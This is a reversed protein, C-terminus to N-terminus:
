RHFGRLLLIRVISGVGDRLQDGLRVMSRITVAPPVGIGQLLDARTAQEPYKELWIPLLSVLLRSRGVTGASINM